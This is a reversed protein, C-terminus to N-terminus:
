VYYNTVNTWVNFDNRSGLKDYRSIHLSLRKGYM